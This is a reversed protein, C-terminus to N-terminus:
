DLVRESLILVGRRKDISDFMDRFSTYETFKIMSLM